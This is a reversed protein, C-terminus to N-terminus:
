RWMENGNANAYRQRIRQMREGLTKLPKERTHWLEYLEFANAIKLLVLTSFGVASRTSVFRHLQIPPSKKQRKMRHRKKRSIRNLIQALDAKGNDPLHDSVCVCMCPFTTLSVFSITMQQSLKPSWIILQKKYRCAIRGLSAITAQHNCIFSTFNTAWQICLMYLLCIPTHQSRYFNLSRSFAIITSTHVQESWPRMFAYFTFAWQCRVTFYYKGM